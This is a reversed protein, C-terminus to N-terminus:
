KQGQLGTPVQQPVLMSTLASMRCSFGPMLHCSGVYGLKVEKIRKILAERREKAKKGLNEGKLGDCVFLEVDSILPSEHSLRGGAHVGRPIDLNTQNRTRLGGVVRLRLSISRTGERKRGPPVKVESGDSKGM